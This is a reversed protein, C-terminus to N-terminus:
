CNIPTTEHPTKGQKLEVMPKCGLSPLRHLEDLKMDIELSM